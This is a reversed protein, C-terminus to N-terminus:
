FFATGAGGQELGGVSPKKKQNKVEPFPPDYYRKYLMKQHNVDDSILKSEYVNVVM